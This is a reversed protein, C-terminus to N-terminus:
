ERVESESIQNYLTGELKPWKSCSDDDEVLIGKRDCLGDENDKCTKCTKDEM